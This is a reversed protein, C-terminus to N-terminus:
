AEELLRTLIGWQPDEFADKEAVIILTGNHHMVFDKVKNLFKMVSKFDNYMLLYELCDFIVIGRSGKEEMMRLYRYSLETMRELNTPSIFNDKGEKSITTIFYREWVDSVEKLDRVFALVPIDKLTEKLITYKEKNVILVGPEITIQPVELARLESFEDSYTLKITLTTLSVVLVASIAYGIIPYIKQLHEPLGYIIPIPFLHIGFLVLGIFLYRAKRGYIDEIGRISYGALLFFIGATAHSGAMVLFGEIIDIIGMKALIELGIFYLALLPGILSFPLIKILPVGRDEEKCLEVTGCFMLVSAISLFFGIAYPNLVTYNIVTLFDFFWALSIFLASRRKTKRYVRLILTFALLDAILVVMGQITSVMSYDVM